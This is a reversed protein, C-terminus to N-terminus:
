FSASEGIAKVSNKIEDIIADTLEGDLEDRLAEHRDRGESISKAHAEGFAATIRQNFELIFLKPIRVSISYEIRQLLTAGLIPDVKQIEQMSRKIRKTIYENFLLEEVLANAATVAAREISAQMNTQQPKASTAQRLSSRQDQKYRDKEFELLAKFFIRLSKGVPGRANRILTLFIRRLHRKALRLAIAAAVKRGGRRVVRRAVNSAGGSVVLSALEAVNELWPIMMSLDQATTALGFDIALQNRNWSTTEKLEGIDARSFIIVPNAVIGGNGDESNATVIEGIRWGIEYQREETVADLLEHRVSRSRNDQPRLEEFRQLLQSVYLTSRLIIDGKQYYNRNGGVPYTLTKRRKGDSIEYIINNGNLTSCFLGFDTTLESSYEILRQNEIEKGIRPAAHAIRYSKRLALHFQNLWDQERRLKNYAQSSQLVGLYRRIKQVLLAATATPMPDSPSFSNAITNISNSLLAVNHAQQSSLVTEPINDDKLFDDLDGFDMLLVNILNLEDKVLRATSSNENKAQLQVADRFLSQQDQRVPHMVQRLQMNGYQQGIQNAIVQRQTRPLNINNLQQASSHSSAIGILNLTDAMKPLAMMEQVSSPAPQQQTKTATSIPTQKSM